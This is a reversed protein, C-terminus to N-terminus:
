VSRQEFLSKRVTTGNDAETEGMKLWVVARRGGEKEEERRMTESESIGGRIFSQNFGWSLKM